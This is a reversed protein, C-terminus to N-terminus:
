KQAYHAAIADSLGAPQPQAVGAPNSGGGVPVPPAPPTVTAAGVAEKLGKAEIETALDEATTGELKLVKALDPSIGAAKLAEQRVELTAAEAKEAELTAWEKATANAKTLLDTIGTGDPADPVLLSFLEDLGKTIAPDDDTDAADAKAKMADLDGYKTTIKEMQSRQAQAKADRIIADFAAQTMAPAMKAGGAGGAADDDDGDAAFHRVGMLRGIGLLDNQPNRHHWHQGRQGNKFM